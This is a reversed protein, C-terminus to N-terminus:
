AGQTTSFSAASTLPNKKQSKTGLFPHYCQKRNAIILRQDGFVAKIAFHFENVQVITRQENVEQLFNPAGISKLTDLKASCARLVLM